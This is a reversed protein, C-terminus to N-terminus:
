SVLQAPENRFELLPAALCHFDGAAGMRHIQHVFEGAQRPVFVEPGREGVLYAGGVNVAGGGAKGGFFPLGFGGTKFFETLAIKALEELIVKAMQKFANEGGAAARGLAAGIRRGAQDFSAGIDEASKKAPGQAFSQLAASASVLEAQFDGLLSDPKDTM